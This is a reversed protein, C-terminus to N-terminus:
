QSITKIWFHNVFWSLIICTAGSITGIRFIIFGPYFGATDSIWCNPFPEVQHLYVAIYYCLVVSIIGSYFAVRPILSAQFSGFMAYQNM